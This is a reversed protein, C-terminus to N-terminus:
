VSDRYVVSLTAACHTTAVDLRRIVERDLESKASRDLGARGSWGGAPYVGAAPRGVCISPDVLSMSPDARALRGWQLFRPVPQKSRNGPSCARHLVQAM